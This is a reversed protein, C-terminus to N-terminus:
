FSGWEISLNITNNQTNTTITVSNASDTNFQVASIQNGAYDNLVVSNTDASLSPNLYADYGTIVRDWSLNSTIVANEGEGTETGKAILLDGPLWNNFPETVVYTDGVKVGSTPLVNVVGDIGGKYTMANAARIHDNINKQLDEEIQEVEDKTALTIITSNIDRIDGQVESMESQLTDIDDEAAAIQDQAESMQGQLTDIDGEAITIKNTLNKLQGKISAANNDDGITANLAIISDQAGKLDGQVTELSTNLTQIDTTHSLITTTHQGVTGNIRLIDQSHNRITSEAVIVRSDLGNILESNARIADGNDKIDKEFQEIDRAVEEANLELDAIRSSLTTGEIFSTGIKDNIADINQNIDNIGQEYVSKLTYNEVIETLQDGIDNIDQIITENSEELATARNEVSSARDELQKIRYKVTGNLNDDGITNNINNIDQEHTTKLVYNDTLNTNLNTVADSVDNIDGQADQLNSELTSIRDILGSGVDTGEGIINKLLNIDETNAAINETNTLISQGNAAIDEINKTIKETNAIIADSLDKIEGTHTNVADVIEQSTNLTTNLQVWEKGNWRVLANQEAIFYILDTSYPPAVKNTFETLNEFYLVTGQIRIRSNDSTDVYMGREDTTVYITGASKEVGDLRSHEGMKFKLFKQTDAM